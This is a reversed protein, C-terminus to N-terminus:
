FDKIVRCLLSVDLWKNAYHVIDGYPSSKTELKKSLLKECWMQAQALRDADGGIGICHLVFLGYRLRDNTSKSLEPYNPNDYLHLAIEKAPKLTDYRPADTLAARLLEAQMWADIYVGGRVMRLELFICRFPQSYVSRFWKVTQELANVLMSAEASTQDEILEDAVEIVYFTWYAVKLILLLPADAELMQDAKSLFDLAPRIDRQYRCRSMVLIADAQFKLFKFRDLDPAIAELKDFGAVLAVCRDVDPLDNTVFSGQKRIRLDHLECELSDVLSDFEM